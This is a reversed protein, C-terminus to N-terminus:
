LRPNSRLDRHIVRRDVSLLNNKYNSKVNLSRSIRDLVVPKPPWRSSSRLNSQQREPVQSGYQTQHTLYAGKNDNSM